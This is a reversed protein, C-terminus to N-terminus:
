VLVTLQQLQDGLRQQLGKLHGLLGPIVDVTFQVHDQEGRRFMYQRAIDSGLGEMLIDKLVQLHRDSPIPTIVGFSSADGYGFSEYGDDDEDDRHEDENMTARRSSSRRRSHHGHREYKQYRHLSAEIDPTQGVPVAKVTISSDEKSHHPVRSGLIEEGLPSRGIIPSEVMYDNENDSDGEDMACGRLGNPLPTVPTSCVGLGAPRSISAMSPAATSLSAMATKEVAAEVDITLGSSSRSSICSSSENESTFITTGTLNSSQSVSRTKSKFSSSATASADSPATTSLAPRRPKHSSSKGITSDSAKGSLSSPSEAAHGAGSSGMPSNSTQAIEGLDIIVEAQEWDRQFMKSLDQHKKPNTEKLSSSAVRLSAQLTKLGEIQSAFDRINDLDMQLSIQSEVVKTPVNIDPSDFDFDEDWNERTTKKIKTAAPMNQFNPAISDAPLSTCRQRNRLSAHSAKNHANKHPTSLPLNVTSFSIPELAGASYMPSSSPAGSDSQIDWDEFEDDDDDDDGDNKFSSLPPRIQEEEVKRQQNMEAQHRSIARIDDKPRPQRTASGYHEQFSVRHLSNDALSTTATRCSGSDDEDDVDSLTHNGEDSIDTGSLSNRMPAGGEAAAHRHRHNLSAPDHKAPHHPGEHRRHPQQQQQQQQHQQQLQQQRRKTSGTPKSWHFITSDNWIRRLRSAEKQHNQPYWSSTSSLQPQSHAKPQQAFEAKCQQQDLTTDLYCLCRLQQKEKKLQKRSKKLTYSTSSSNSEADSGQTYSSTSLALSVTSSSLRSSASVSSTLSSRWSTSPAPEDLHDLLIKDPRVVLPRVTSPPLIYNPGTPPNHVLCRRPKQQFLRFRKHVSCQQQFTHSPSQAQQILSNQHERQLQTCTQPTCPITDKTQLPRGFVLGLASATSVAGSVFVLQQLQQRREPLPSCPASHPYYLRSEDCPQPHGDHMDDLVLHHGLSTSTLTYSPDTALVPTTTTTTATSLPHM